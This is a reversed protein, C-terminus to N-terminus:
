RKGGDARLYRSGKAKVLGLLAAHKKGLETKLGVLGIHAAARLQLSLSFSNFYKEAMIEAKSFVVKSSATTNSHRTNRVSEEAPEVWEMEHEENDVAICISVSETDVEMDHPMVEVETINVESSVENLETVENVSLLSGRSSRRLNHSIAITLTREEDRLVAVRTREAAVLEAKSAALESELPVLGELLEALDVDEEDGDLHLVHWISEDDGEQPM